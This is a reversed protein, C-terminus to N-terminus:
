RRTPLRGERTPGFRLRADGARVVVGPSQGGPGGRPDSAPAGPRPSGSPVPCADVSGAGPGDRCAGARDGEGEFAREGMVYARLASHGVYAAYNIGKPTADLADLYQPFTEWRWDVGTLVDERQIDEAREISRLVLDKETSRCPAITFGCNGMVASTVGHWCASTGLPEWFVQADLHTHGDIFGPTVFHGEADVVETGPDRIRGIAVIRGNTVALDACYGPRGSGDIVTGNRIVLDYM